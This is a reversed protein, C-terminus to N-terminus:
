HRGSLEFLPYRALYHLVLPCMNWCEWKGTTSTVVVLSISYLLDVVVENFVQFALFGTPSFHRALSFSHQTYM